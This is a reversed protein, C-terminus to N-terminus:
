DPKKEAKAYMSIRTLILDSIYSGTNYGAWNLTRVEDKPSIDFHKNDTLYGVYDGNFSTIILQFGRERAEEYLGENLALEGSFDAPVGCFIISGIRFFSLEGELEGMFLDFLWPRLELYKSFRLRGDPWNVKLHEMTLTGSQIMPKSASDITLIFDALQNGYDQMFAMDKLGYEKPRQSGVAGAGFMAFAYDEEQLKAVLYGPYDASFSHIQKSLISAHAGFTLFIGKSGDARTIEIGRLWDDVEEISRDLRNEVLGGAKAEMYHIQAASLTGSAQAYADWFANELNAVVQEDYKGTIWRALHRQEWGGFSSHTHTAMWYVMLGLGEETIKAEVRQRLEKPVMLLDLNVMAFSTDGQEFLMMRLNLSDLVAEHPGRVKYGILQSPERPTINQSAWAVRIRTADLQSSSVPSELFDLTSLMWLWTTNTTSRKTPRFILISLVVFILLFLWRGKPFYTMYSHPYKQSSGGIEM